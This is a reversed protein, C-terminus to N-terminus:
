LQRVFRALNRLPKKQILQGVFLNSMAETLREIGDPRNHSAQTRQQNATVTRSEGVSSEPPFILLPWTSFCQWKKNARYCLLQLIPVIQYKCRPIGFAINFIRNFGMWRRRFRYTWGSLWVTWLWLVGTRCPWWPCRPGTRVANHTRVHHQRLEARKTDSQSMCRRRNM